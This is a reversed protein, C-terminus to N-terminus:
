HSCFQHKMRFESVIAFKEINRTNIIALFETDATETIFHSFNPCIVKHQGGPALDQLPGLGSIRNRSVETALFSM